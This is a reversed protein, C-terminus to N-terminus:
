RLDLIFYDTEGVRRWGMSMATSPVARTVLARAGTAALWRTAETREARDAAWFTLMDGEPIEASMTVRALHTWTNDTLAMGMYSVRDGPKIGMQQLAKVVEWDPFKANDHFQLVAHGVKMAIQSGLVISVAIVASRIAKPVGDTNKLRLAAACAAFLGITFGALMRGEVRVLGYLALGGIAPLWLVPQALLRKAFAWIEGDWIALVLFVTLLPALLGFYLDFYDHLVIHIRNIQRRLDVHVPSGKYGNSPDAWPPYAGLEIIGTFDQANPAAVPRPVLPGTNDQADMGMIHRYNVAGADGYTLRGKSKSLEFIFPASVAAFVIATLVVRPLFRRWEKRLLIALIFTFALPFMIAKTLYGLGLVIGLLVYRWLGGNSSVIQMALSSGALYAAFLLIDPQELYPPVLFTSIWFFLVYGLFRVTDDSLSGSILGANGGDLQKRFALFSSIFWEFSALALVLSAVAFLHIALPERFPGFGFLKVCLALLFPLAPSWYGNVLSHWNGAVCSYSINLYGVADPDLSNAATLAQALWCCVM